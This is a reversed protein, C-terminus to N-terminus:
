GSMASPAAAAPTSMRVVLRLRNTAGVREYHAEDMLSRLLQIGMGRSTREELPKTSDFPPASTPDFPEGDDEVLIVVHDPQVDIRLDIRNSTAHEILNRVTEEIGLQVKFIVNQALGCALLFNQVEAAFQILARLSRDLSRELTRMM